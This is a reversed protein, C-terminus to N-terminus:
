EIRYYEELRQRVYILLLHRLEESPAQPAIGLEMGLELGHKGLLQVMERRAKKTLGPAHPIHEIVVLEGLLRYGANRFKEILKPDAGLCYRLPKILGCLELVRKDYSDSIESNLRMLGVFIESLNPAARSRLSMTRERGSQMFAQDLGLVYFRWRLMSLAEIATSPLHPNPRMVSVDLDEYEIQYLTLLAERERDGLRRILQRLFVWMETIERRLNEVAFGSIDFFLRDYGSLQDLNMAM